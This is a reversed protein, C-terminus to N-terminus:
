HWRWEDGDCATWGCLVSVGEWSGLRILSGWRGVGPSRSSKQVTVASNHGLQSLWDRGTCGVAERKYKLSNGKDAGERVASISIVYM